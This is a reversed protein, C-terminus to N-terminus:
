KPNTFQEVIKSLEKKKTTLHINFKNIHQAINLLTKYEVKKKQIGERLQSIFPLLNESEALAIDLEGSKAFKELIEWAKQEEKNKATKHKLTLWTHFNHRADKEYMATYLKKIEDQHEKILQIRKQIATILRKNKESTSQCAESVFDEELEQLTKILPPYWVGPIKTQYDPPLLRPKYYKKKIPDLWHAPM